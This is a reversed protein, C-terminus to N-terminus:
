EWKFTHPYFSSAQLVIHLVCMKVFVLITEILNKKFHKKFTYGPNNKERNHAILLLPLANGLGFIITEISFLSLFSNGYAKIKFNRILYSQYILYGVIIAVVLGNTSYISKTLGEFIKQTKDLPKTPAPTKPSEDLDEPPYLVSYLGSLQFTINFFCMVVFWVLINMNNNPSSAGNQTRKYQMWIVPVTCAVGYIITEITFEKPDNKIFDVDRNMYSAFCLLVIMVIKINIFADHFKQEHMKIDESSESSNLSQEVKSVNNKRKLNKRSQKPSRESLQESSQMNRLQKPSQEPSQESSQMNSPQKQQKLTDKSSM